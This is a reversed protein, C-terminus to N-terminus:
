CGKPVAHLNLVSQSQVAPQSESSEGTKGKEFHLLTHHKRGCKRCPSATCLYVRHNSCFCNICLAAKKIAKFRDHPTLKKFPECNCIVHEGQCHPCSSNTTSVAFAQQSRQNPRSNFPKRDSLNQSRGQIQDSKTEEFQARRQLFTILEKYTPNESECSSDESKERIFTNLKQEIIKVLLTDWREVPEKLAELARVHKQIQDLLSRVPFGKSLHTLNLLAKVHTQRIIKRNDYREKLLDLAVKYNESSLEISAIIEAAEGKLSGKLHYLKEIDPIEDDNDVLSKFLDHFGLWAEYSGSFTPLNVCPLSKKPNRVSNSLTERRISQSSSSDIPPNAIRELENFFKDFEEFERELDNTRKQLAPFDREATYGDIFKAFNTIKRKSNTIKIKLEEVRPAM